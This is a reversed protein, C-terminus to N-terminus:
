YEGLYKRCHWCYMEGYNFQGDRRMRGVHGASCCATPRAGYATIEKLSPGYADPWLQHMAYFEAVTAPFIDCVADGRSWTPRTRITPTGNLTLAILHKCLPYGNIVPAAGKCGDRGHQWDPCNCTPPEVCYRRTRDRQSHVYFSGPTGNPSLAEAAVLEAARLPRLGLRGLNRRNKKEFQKLAQAIEPHDVTLAHRQAETRGDPGAPYSAIVKHQDLVQYAHAKPSYNIESM